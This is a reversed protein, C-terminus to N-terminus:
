FSKGQRLRKEKRYVQRARERTIGFKRAIETFTIKAERMEYIDANREAMYTPHRQSIIIMLVRWKIEAM